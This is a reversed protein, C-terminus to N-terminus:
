YDRDDVLPPSLLTYVVLADKKREVVSAKKVYPMFDAYHDFDGVVEFVKAPPADVETVAVLARVGAKPDDKTFIVFEDERNAEEWGAGPSKADVAGAVPAALLMTLFLHRM